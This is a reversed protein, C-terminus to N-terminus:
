QGVTTDVGRIWWAGSENLVGIAVRLTRPEHTAALAGSADYVNSAAQTATLEVDYFSSSVVTTAIDTTDFDGGTVTYGGTIMGEVDSILSACFRCEPHSFERVDVLDGTKFAYAYLDLFYVALAEATEADVQSLDPREPPVTADDPDPDPEPTPTPTPTYPEFTLPTTTPAPEGTCGALVAVVM